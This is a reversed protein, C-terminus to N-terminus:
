PSALEGVCRFGLLNGRVGADAWNRFSVRVSRPDLTWSGGRLVRVDLRAGGVRLGFHLAAPGQPDNSPSKRYYKGDYLDDAWESVNGLMDYLGFANPRKQAVEHTKGGSNGSYWAIGDIAGYRSETNGARAVYEWEAETPLRGGAWTCYAVSDHWSANVIPMEQNNWGPNFKPAPPMNKGTTASHRRYAAVTVPTQGLWFGRSITVQHPPKEDGGCESDGPSCGMMFTGPPIWVYKLGDKSNEKVTATTSASVGRPPIEAPRKPEPEQSDALIADIASEHGAAVSVTERYEKKGSATIRLEHSGAAVEPIALQGKADATGRSSGDLFVAAGPSTQVVVTGALDALPAEARAEKGALVSINQRYERKGPATIRLEHSGAALEPIALQGKADATGRSSGDLFVEAGPSTQVVVTGALDALVATVKTVQGAVVTVKQEHNRKGALSIRLDHDGPAANDIVLRGQPSAQGKRVDDLYVEANPSTQIVIQALKPAPPKTPPLTTDPRLQSSACLANALALTLVLLACYIKTGV